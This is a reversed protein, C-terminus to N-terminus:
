NGRSAAQLQRLCVRRADAARSDTTLETSLVRFARTSLDMFFFVDLACGQAKYTWVTSPPQERVAAPQGLVAMTEERDLGVLRQLNLEPPAPPRPPRAQTPPPAAATETPPPPTPEPEPAPPPASAVTEDPSFWKEVTECGTIPGLLAVALVV